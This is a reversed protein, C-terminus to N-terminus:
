IEGDKITMGTVYNDTVFDLICHYTYAYSSLDIKVQTTEISPLPLTINYRTNDPNYTKQLVYEGNILYYISLNAKSEMKVRLQKPMIPVDFTYYAVADRFYMSHGSEKLLGNLPVTGGSQLGSAEIRFTMIGKKIEAYKGKENFFTEEGCETSYYQGEGAQPERDTDSNLKDFLAEMQQGTYKTKFAGVAM